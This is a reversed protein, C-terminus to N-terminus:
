GGPPGVHRQDVRGYARDTAQVPDSTAREVESPDQEAVSGM